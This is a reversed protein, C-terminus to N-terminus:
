GFKKGFLSDKVIRELKKGEEESELWIHPPTNFRKELFKKVDKIKVGKAEKVYLNNNFVEKKELYTSSVSETLKSDYPITRPYIFTSLIDLFWDKGEKSDLFKFIEEKLITHLSELTESFRELDSVFRIGQINYGFTYTRSEFTSFDYIFGEKERLIDFALKNILEYSIDKVAVYKYDFEREEKEFYFLYANIGSLTDDHFVGVKFKNELKLKPFSSPKQDVFRKSIKELERELTASPPVNEQIAFITNGTTFRKIFYKHLDDLTIKKIEGVEGVPNYVFEPSSDALLFKVSEEMPNRGQKKQGKREALIINREKEIYNGFKEKPFDVLNAVREVVRLAGKHNSHGTLYINKRTTVANAYIRPNERDGAEFKEFSSRTKYYTNPNFFMHELFHASGKPVSEKSEYYSGAKVVISFDFDITAPNQLHIVSIGNDLEYIRYHIKNYKNKFETKLKM